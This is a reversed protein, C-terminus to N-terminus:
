GGWCKPRQCGINKGGIIAFYIQKLGNVKPSIRHSVFEGIASTKGIFPVKSIWQNEKHKKNTKVYGIFRGNDELNENVQILFSNLQTISNLRQLSVM